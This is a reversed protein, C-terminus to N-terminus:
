SFRATNSFATSKRPREGPQCLMNSSRSAARYSKKPRTRICVRNRVIYKVNDFLSQKFTKSDIRHSEIRLKEQITAWLAEQLPKQANIKAQITDIEELLQTLSSTEERSLSYRSRAGLRLGSQGLRFRVEIAGCSRPSDNISDRSSAPMMRKRGSIIVTPAVTNASDGNAECPPGSRSGSQQACIPPRVTAVNM